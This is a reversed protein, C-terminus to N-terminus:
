DREQGEAESKTESKAGREKCKFYRNNNSYLEKKMMIVETMMMMM